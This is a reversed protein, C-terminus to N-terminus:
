LELNSFDTTKRVELMNDIAGNSIASRHGAPINSGLKEKSPLLIVVFYGYDAGGGM